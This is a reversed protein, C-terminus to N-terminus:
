WSTTYSNIAREITKNTTLNIESSLEPHEFMDAVIATIIAKGVDDAIQLGAIYTILVTNKDVIPYNTGYKAVVHPFAGQIWLEYKDNDITETEGAKNYSISIISQAPTVPLRMSQSLCCYRAEITQTMLARASIRELYKTAANIQSELQHDFTTDDPTIRLSTKIEDLTVAAETAQDTVTWGVCDM